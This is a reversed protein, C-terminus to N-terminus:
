ERECTSHADPILEIDKSQGSLRLSLSCIRWKGNAEQAWERLEGSGRPGRIPTILDGTGNGNDAVISGKILRAVDIPTGVAREFQPSGTAAKVALSLPVSTRMEFRSVQFCAVIAILVFVVALGALIKRWNSRARQL